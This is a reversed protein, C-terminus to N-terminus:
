EAWSFMYESDDVQHAWKTTKFPSDAEIMVSTEEVEDVGISGEYRGPQPGHHLGRRHITISEDGIGERSSFEGEVYFIVEDTDINSHYYPAPIADPHYDVKRPVWSILEFSSAEFTVHEPPPQHIKGTIPEYDAINFTFPYNYGDWGVVDFPHNDLTYTSIAEDVKVDLEFDGEEDNTILQKPGHLDRESYPAGEVLQGRDNLFHDPIRIPDSSEVLYFRHGAPNRFRYTTGRPVHIYDGSTYHLEGFVTDLHGEGERVFWLEDAGANRFFRDQDESPNVMAVNAEDNFLVVKRADIPDGDGGLKGARFHHHRHQDPEWEEPAVNRRGELSNIETPPHHHYLISEVGEFGETGFVEERLLKGDETRFETHRKPPVEGMQKYPPM